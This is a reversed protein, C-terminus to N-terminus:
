CRPIGYIFICILHKDLGEGDSYFVEFCLIQPEYKKNQVQWQENVYQFIYTFIQTNVSTYVM